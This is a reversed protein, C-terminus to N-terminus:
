VKPLRRYIKWAQCTRINSTTTTAADDGNDLGIDDSVEVPSQHRLSGRRSSSWRHPSPNKQPPSSEHETWQSICYNQTSSAKNYPEVKFEFHM